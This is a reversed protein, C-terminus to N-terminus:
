RSHGPAVTENTRDVVFSRPLISVIHDSTFNVAVSTTTTNVVVALETRRSKVLEMTDKTKVAFHAKLVARGM